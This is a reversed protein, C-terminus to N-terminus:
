GVEAGQYGDLEHGEVGDGGGGGDGNYDDGM